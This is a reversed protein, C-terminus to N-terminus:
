SSPTVFSQTGSATECQTAVNPGSTWIMGQKGPLCPAAVGFGVVPNALQGGVTWAEDWGGFDVKDFKGRTSWQGTADTRDIFPGWDTRGYNRSTRVSIPQNPMGSIFVEFSDGVQFDTSGARTLNVIKVGPNQAALSAASVLFIVTARM